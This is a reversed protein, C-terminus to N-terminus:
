QSTRMFLINSGQPPVLVFGKLRPIYKFNSNIGSKPTPPPVKSNATTVFLEMTWENGAQPQIKYIRGAATGQGSYFLFYDHEPDYDMAAYAPKEQVFMQYVDNQRFTIDTQVGTKLDVRSSFVQQTSASMGDAWQLTFIQNRSKDYAMPWRTQAKTRTAIPKSWVSTSSPQGMKLASLAASASWMDLNHTFVNESGPIKISGFGSGVPLPAWTNPPDWQNTAFDFADVNMFHYASGFAGRVGFLFLRHLPEIYFTTQYTHRSSPTGDPYYAVDKQPVRSPPIRLQWKPADTELVLSVVRNDSSDGHGGAAGIIIESNAERLAIGTFAFVAAGGAGATNPIEIWENLSKGNMWAPKDTMVIPEPAPAAPPPPPSTPLSPLTPDPLEGANASGLAASGESPEYVKFDNSCNNFLATTLASFAAVSLWVKQTKTLNFKM